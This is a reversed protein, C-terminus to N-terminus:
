SDLDSTDLYGERKLVAFREVTAGVGDALTTSPLPGLVARIAADDMEAPIALPEDAVTITGRADPWAREIETM